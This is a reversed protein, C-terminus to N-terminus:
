KTVSLIFKKAISLPPLEGDPGEYEGTFTHIITAGSDKGSKDRAICLIKGSNEEEGAKCYKKYVAESKSYFLDGLSDGVKGIVSASDAVATSKYLGTATVGLGMECSGDQTISVEKEAFEFKLTCDQEKNKYTAVNNKIEIAGEAEGTNGKSNVVLLKFHTDGESTTIELDGDESQYKGDKSALASAPLSNKSLEAIREKTADNICEVTKCKNRVMKLWSKQEAKLGDPNKSTALTDKYKSALDEDLKSTVESSCISKEVFTSAKKCDFSAAYVSSFLTVTSIILLFKKNM